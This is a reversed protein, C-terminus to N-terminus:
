ISITSKSQATREDSGTTRSTGRTTDGENSKNAIAVAAERQITPESSTLEDGHSRKKLASSLISSANGNAAIDNVCDAIATVLQEHKRAETELEEVRNSLTSNVEKLINIENVSFGTLRVFMENICTACLYVQGHFEIWLSFDIYGDPHNGNGCMACCAPALLSSVGRAQIRSSPNEEYVQM